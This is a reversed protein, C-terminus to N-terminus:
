VEHSSSQVLVSAARILRAMEDCLKIIQRRGEEESNDRLELLEVLGMIGQLKNSMEHLIKRM